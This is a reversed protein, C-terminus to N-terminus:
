KMDELQFILNDTTRKTYVESIELFLRRIESEVVTFLFTGRAVSILNVNTGQSIEFYNLSIEVRSKVRSLFANAVMEWQFIKTNEINKRIAEILSVIREANTKQVQRELDELFNSPDTTESNNSTVKDTTSM